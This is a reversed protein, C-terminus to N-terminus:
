SGEIRKHGSQRAGLDIVTEVAYLRKDLQHAFEKLGGLGHAIGDMDQQMRVMREQMVVVNKLAALADGFASV